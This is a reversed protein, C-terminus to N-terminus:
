AVQAYTLPYLGRDGSQGVGDDGGGGDDDNEDDDNKDREPASFTTTVKTRVSAKSAPACAISPLMFM